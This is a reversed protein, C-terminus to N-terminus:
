DKFYRYTAYGAAGVATGILYGACPPCRKMRVYTSPPLSDKVMEVILDFNKGHSADSSITLPGNSSNSSDVVEQDDQKPPNNGIGDGQQTPYSHAVDNIVSLLFIVCVTISMFNRAM